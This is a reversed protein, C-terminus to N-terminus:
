KSKRKRAHHRRHFFRADYNLPETGRVVIRHFDPHQPNILWNNEAPALASPILLVVGEAREVFEDGYRALEPPAPTGRWNSPLKDADIKHRVLDAPIDASALVLDSPPDDADMHVFYELM